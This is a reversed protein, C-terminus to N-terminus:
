DMFVSLSLTVGFMYMVHSSSVTSRTLFSSVNRVQKHQGKFVLAFAGHGILEGPRYEYDGISQM